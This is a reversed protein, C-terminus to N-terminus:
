GGVGKFTYAFTKVICCHAETKKAVAESVSGLYYGKLVDSLAISGLVVM